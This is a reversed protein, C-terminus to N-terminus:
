LITKIKKKIEIVEEIFYVISNYKKLIFSMIRQLKDPQKKLFNLIFREELNLSKLNEILDGLNFVENEEVKLLINNVKEFDEKYESVLVGEPIGTKTKIDDLPVHKNSKNQSSGYSYIQNETDITVGFM